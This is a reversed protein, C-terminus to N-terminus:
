WGEPMHRHWSTISQYFHALHLADADGLHPGVIKMGVPLGGRTFGCPVSVAPLGLLNEAAEIQNGGPFIERLTAEVRPAPALTSSGLLLDFREFLRAFDRVMLTRVRQARLYEAAGIAFGGLIQGRRAPDLVDGIRGDRVIGEFSASQEAALITEAVAEYPYPPIAAEVPPVGAAALTARAQAFAAGVEPDGWREYNERVFGVRLARAREASRTFVVRVTGEVTAPDAPDRGAIAALVTACDRASRALVGVKDMSWSVTMVGARSVRGFSPRLGTVGCFSAPTMISGWTETGLAFPVAGAAVAAASGSSSGGSWRATDWPTRCAGTITADPPGGALETMSTTGVLVAGAERLKRVAAAEVAAVRDRYVASGCRWPTGQVAFLDKVACPIGHLPGRDLGNALEDGSQLAQARAREGTLTAFARLLRDARESRSLALDTLRSAGPAGRRLARGAEQLSSLVREDPNM